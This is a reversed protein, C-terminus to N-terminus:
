LKGFYEFYQAMPKWSLIHRLIEDQSPERVGSGVPWYRKLSLGFLRSVGSAQWHTLKASDLRSSLMAM